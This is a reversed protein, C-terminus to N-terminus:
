VRWYNIRVTYISSLLDLVTQILNLYFELNSPQMSNTAADWGSTRSNEKVRLISNSGSPFCDGIIVSGKVLVVSM